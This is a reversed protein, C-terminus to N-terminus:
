RNIRYLPTPLHESTFWLTEGDADYCLGEMQRTLPPEILHAEKQLAEKLSDGSVIKWEHIFSYTAIAVRSGDPSFCGGTTECADRPRKGLHNRAPFNLDVVKELIMPKGDTLVEPFAYLSCHGDETKTVVHIRLTTPHVLLTEANHHGDPYSGHWLKPEASLTENSATAPLSPEPIQYIQISPRIQLNDGIDGIFLVPKGAADKASAIDEWDFNVAHPVRVKALTRGSRDIAYVCPDNTSDNHTWFILPDRPSRTLGSSEKIRKDELVAVREAQSKEIQQAPCITALLSCTLILAKM